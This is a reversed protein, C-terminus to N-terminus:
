SRAAARRSEQFEPWPPEVSFLRKLLAGDEEFVERL